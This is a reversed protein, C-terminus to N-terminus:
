YQLWLWYSINKKYTPAQNASVWQHPHQAAGGALHRLLANGVRGPDSQHFQLSVNWDKWKPIRGVLGGRGSCCVCYCVSSDSLSKCVCVFCVILNMRGLPWMLTLASSVLWATSMKWQVCTSKGFCSFACTLSIKKVIHRNWWTYNFTVLKM